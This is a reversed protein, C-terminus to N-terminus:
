DSIRDVVSLRKLFAVILIRLEHEGSHLFMEVPLSLFSISRQSTAQTRFALIFALMAKRHIMAHRFYCFNNALAVKTMEFLPTNDNISAKEENAIELM